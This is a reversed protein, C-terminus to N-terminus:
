RDSPPKGSSTASEARPAAAAKGNARERRNSIVYLALASWVCGFGVLRWTGLPEAFWVAGVLFQLTPGIYQLVGITSLKIRRVAVAFLTLPLVTVLGGGMLLLDTGRGVHGFAAAGRAEAMALLALAPLTLVATELLLGALAPLPAKKKVLGYLAFATAMTLSVWPLGGGAIAMVMVGAAAIAVAVWQAPQLREGLVVVGLLVNLLPNIYYGLSAELVRDHSVAWIFAGWNIAIMVAAVAYVAWTRPNRIAAVFPEIGGLGGNRLVVPVVVLLLLFSWVIRHCVLEVPPVVNLTKWYLPFFGWLMHAAVACFLGLRYHRDKHQM